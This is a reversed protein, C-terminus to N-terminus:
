CTRLLSVGGILIGVQRLVKLDAEPRSIVNALLYQLDPNAASKPWFRVNLRDLDLWRPSGAAAGRIV